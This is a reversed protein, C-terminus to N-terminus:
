ENLKKLYLYALVYVDPEVDEFDKIISEIGKLMRKLTAKDISSIQSEIKTITEKKM